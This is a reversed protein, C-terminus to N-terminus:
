QFEVPIETSNGQFEVSIVASKEGPGSLQDSGKNKSYPYYM